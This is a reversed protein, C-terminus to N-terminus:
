ERQFRFTTLRYSFQNNLYAVTVDIRKFDDAVEGLLESSVDNASVQWSYGPFDEGFDGSDSAFIGSSTTTVEAMKKQALLPAQTYFRAATNMTLTQSHMRYVSVLVISLVAMAVMVELLTFGTISQKRRHTKKLPQHQFKIM